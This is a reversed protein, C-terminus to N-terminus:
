QSSQVAVRLKCYVRNKVLMLNTGTSRITRRSLLRTSYNRLCMNSPPRRSSWTSSFSISAYGLYAELVNFFCSKDNEIMGITFNQLRFHQNHTCLPQSGQNLEESSLRHRCTQCRQSKFVENDGVRRLMLELTLWQHDPRRNGTNSARGVNQM